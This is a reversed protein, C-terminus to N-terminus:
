GEPRAEIPGPRLRAHEAVQREVERALIADVERCAECLVQATRGGSELEGAGNTEHRARERDIAEAVPLLRARVEPRLIWSTARLEKLFARVQHWAQELEAADGAATSFVKELGDLSERYEICARLRREILDRDARRQFVHLLIASAVLAGVAVGALGALLLEM